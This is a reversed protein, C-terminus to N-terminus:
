QNAKNIQKWFEDDGYTSDLYTYIYFEDYLRELKFGDCKHGNFGLSCETNNLEAEKLYKWDKRSFHNVQISFSVKIRVPQFISPKIAGQLDNGEEIADISMQNFYQEIKSDGIYMTVLKGKLPIYEGLHYDGLDEIYEFINKLVDDLTTASNDHKPKEDGCENPYMDSFDPCCCSISM